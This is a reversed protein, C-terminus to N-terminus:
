KGFFKRQLWSRSQLPGDVARLIVKDDEWVDGRITGKQGALEYAITFRSPDAPDIQGAHIRLCPDATLLTFAFVEHSRHNIWLRRGPSAPTVAYADLCLEREPSSESQPHFYLTVVVWRDLQAPDTRMCSFLLADCPIGLQRLQDQWGKPFHGAGIPGCARYAPDTLLRKVAAPDEEYVVTEAPLTYTLWPKQEDYRAGSSPAVPLSLAVVCALLGLLILGIVLSRRHVRRHSAATISEDLQHPSEDM